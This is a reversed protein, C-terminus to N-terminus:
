RRERYSDAFFGPRIGLPLLYRCAGVKISGTM